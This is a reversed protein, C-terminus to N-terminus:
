SARAVRGALPLTASLFQASATFGRGRYLAQAAVNRTGTLLTTRTYGASRALSLTEDLLTGALHRRRWDPHVALQAVHATGPALATVLVAGVLGDRWWALRTLRPVVVGCATQEVLNAVYRRWGDRTPETVFRAAATQDYSVHLLAALADVDTKRWDRVHLDSAQVETGECGRVRAGERAGECGRVRAGEVTLYDFREVKFGQGTLVAESPSAGAYLFASLCEGGAETCVDVAADLLRQRLDAAEAFVGGLEFRSGSAHFFTLGRVRGSEDVAAIGPLGWTTRAREVQLWSDRTEWGLEVLWRARERAFVLALARADLHRWDVLTM